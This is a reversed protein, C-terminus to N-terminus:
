SQDWAFSMAVPGLFDPLPEGNGNVVVARELRWHDRVVGDSALISVVPFYIGPRLPLPEIACRLSGSGRGVTMSPSVTGGIERGSEDLFSICFRADDGETVEYAISIELAHRGDGNPESFHVRELRAGGVGWRYEGRAAMSRRHNATRKVVRSEPERSEMARGYEALVDATEGRGLIRGHDLWIASRTMSRVLALNHSVFLLTGGNRRFGDLWDVCKRQFNADGVALIEDILLIEPEIATLTAFGLRSAMGASFRKLPTDALSSIEAFAFINDIHKAMTRRGCGHMAALLYANERGTLDPHFGVLADLLSGIRGSTKVTGRTPATVCAILKLLTTKGAGNHGVIGLSTGSQVALTVDDIADFTNKRWWHPFATATLRDFPPPLMERFRAKGVGARYTKTVNSVDIATM